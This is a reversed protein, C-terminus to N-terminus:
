GQAGEKRLSLCRAISRCTPLMFPTYARYAAYGEMLRPFSWVDQFAAYLINLASFAIFAALMEATGSALWLCAYLGVFGRVGPHRCLAYVGRDYVAHASQTVYTKKFPLAFWLAYVTFILFLAALVGFCARVSGETRWPSAFLMLVTSAAVLACGLAFAAKLAPVHWRVQNIEYLFFLAFGVLGVALYVM